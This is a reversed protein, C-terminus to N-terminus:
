IDKYKAKVWAGPEYRAVVQDYQDVMDREPYHESTHVVIHRTIVLAEDYDKEMTHTYTRYRMFEDTVYQGRADKFKEKTGDALHVVLTGYFRV